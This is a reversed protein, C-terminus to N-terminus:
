KIWFRGTSVVFFKLHVKLHPRYVQTWHSLIHQMCIVADSARFLLLGTLLSVPLPAVPRAVRTDGWFGCLPLLSGLGRLHRRIECTCRSMGLTICTHM